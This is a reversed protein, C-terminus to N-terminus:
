RAIGLKWSPVTVKAPQSTPQNTTLRTAHRDASYISLISTQNEWLAPKRCCCCCFVLASGLQRTVNGCKSADHLPPKSYTNVTYGASFQAGRTRAWSNGAKLQTNDSQSTPQNTPPLDHRDRTQRDASYISRRRTKGVRQNEAAAISTCFVLANPIEADNTDKVFMNSTNAM